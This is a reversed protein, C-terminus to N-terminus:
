ILEIEKLLLEIEGRAKNGNKDNFEHVGMGRNYAKEHAKRSYIRQRPVPLWDPDDNLMKRLDSAEMDTPSTDCKNLVIYAKLTKNLAAQATKVDYVLKGLTNIEIDSGPKILTIMFDACALAKMFEPSQSGPTDLCVFDFKGALKKAQSVIDTFCQFYPIEPLIGNETRTDYFDKISGQKDCELFCVSKGKLAICVAISILQTSKGIGGKHGAVTIIKGM